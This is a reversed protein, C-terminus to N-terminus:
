ANTLYVLGRRMGWFVIANWTAILCSLMRVFWSKMKGSQVFPQESVHLLIVLVGVM